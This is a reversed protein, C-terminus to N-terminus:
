EAAGLRSQKRAALFDMPAAVASALTEELGRGTDILTAARLRPALSAYNQTLVRAMELSIEGKRAVLVEPPAHLVLWLDPKPVLGALLRHLFFGRPLRYRAPDVLMDHYYRDFVVLTSRVKAPYVYRLWGAWYDALFFAVKLTSVVWGRPKQAHPETVPGSDSVKGFRPRLHFRRVHRFAPAFEREIHEILTTKGSGDPGLVAIVLGTPRTIRSIFRRVDRLYNLLRPFPGEMNKATLLITRLSGCERTFWAVDQTVIAEVIQPAQHAMGLRTLVDQCAQQDEELLAALRLLHKYEVVDKLVRKVYYYEFEVAPAPIWFGKPSVRRTPLVQDVRLRLRRDLRYDMAADPHIFALRAGIQTGFIYYSATTEHRILQILRAGPIVGATLFLEPLRAYDSPQVMFDIDSEIVEPYKQYGSLIVYPIGRVELARCFDLLMQSRAAQVMEDSVKAQVTVTSAVASMQQTTPLPGELTSKLYNSDMAKQRMHPLGGLGDGQKHGTKVYGSVFWKRIFQYAVDPAFAHLAQRSKFILIRKFQNRNCALDLFTTKSLGQIISDRKLLGYPSSNVKNLGWNTTLCYHFGLKIAEEAIASNYAGGVFAIHDVKHGLMEELLSKSTGMENRAEDLPMSTLRRHTHCHSGILMGMADMEQIQAQNLYGPKGINSTSVFFMGSLGRAHLLKANAFDSLYGDDFTIGVGYAPWTEPHSFCNADVIAVGSGQLLDIQHEFELHSLVHIKDPPPTPETRHYTLLRLLM